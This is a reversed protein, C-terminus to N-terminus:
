QKLHLIVKCLPIFELGTIFTTKLEKQQLMSSYFRGIMRPRLFNKRTLIDSQFSKVEMFFYLSLDIKNLFFNSPNVDTM